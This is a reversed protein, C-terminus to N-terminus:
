KEGSEDEVVKLDVTVPLSSNENDSVVLEFKYDGAKYVRIGVRDKALATPQLKLNEGGVQKWVYTLNKEAPRSKTGDLIIIDTQNPAPVGAVPRRAAKAPNPIVLPCPWRCRLGQPLVNVTVEFPQSFDKGDFAQVEM